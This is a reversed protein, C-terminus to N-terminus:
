IKFFEEQNVFKFGSRQAFTKDSTMDGVMICEAPNLKYEEILSVGLGPMPKRCYCVIPPISHSCYRVDIDLGLLENTKKFCDKAVQESLHGKAIGSQNSVGLILYGLAKYKDLVEKRNPLIKINDVSTPYKDGNLTERLTGDYDVIIAKNIYSNPRRKFEITKVLDFGETVTPKEFEKKYRFIVTPPFMNSDVSKKIEEPSLMKGYREIMRSVINVQAEEITTSMTWCEIEYGNDKAAKIALKRSEITPYTNDLVFNDKQLKCLENLKFHLDNMTGKEKDRNLNVYGQDILKKAYTSKGSGNIGTILIIKM